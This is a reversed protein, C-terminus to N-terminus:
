PVLTWPVWGGSNPRWSRSTEGIQGLYQIVIREQHALTFDLTCTKRSIKPWRIYPPNKPSSPTVPNGILLSRPIFWRRYLCLCWSWWALHVFIHCGLSVAVLLESSCWTVSALPLVAINSGRFEDLPTLFEEVGWNFHSSCVHVTLSLIQCHRRVFSAPDPHPAPPFPPSPGYAGHSFAPVTHPPATCM